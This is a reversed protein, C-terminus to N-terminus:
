KPFVAELRDVNFYIQDSKNMETVMSLQPFTEIWLIGPPFFGDPHELNGQLEM